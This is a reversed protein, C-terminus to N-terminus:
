IVFWIKICIVVAPWSRECYKKWYDDECTYNIIKKIQWVLFQLVLHLLIIIIKYVIFNNYKFWKFSYFLFYIAKVSLGRCVIFQFFTSTVQVSYAQLHQLAFAWYHSSPTPTNLSTTVLNHARSKFSYLMLVNPDLGLEGLEVTSRKVEKGLM